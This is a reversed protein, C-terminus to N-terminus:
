CRSLEFLNPVTCPLDHKLIDVYPVPCQAQNTKDSITKVRITDSPPLNFYIKFYLIPLRVQSSFINIYLYFVMDFSLIIYYYYFVSVKMSGTSLITM